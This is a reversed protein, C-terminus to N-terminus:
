PALSINENVDVYKTINNWQLFPLGSQFIANLFNLGFVDRITSLQRDPRRKYYCARNRLSLPKVRVLNSDM